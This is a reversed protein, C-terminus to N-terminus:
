QVRDRDHHVYGVGRSWFRLNPARSKCAEQDPSAIPEPTVKAQRTLPVQFCPNTRKLKEVEDLITYTLGLAQRLKFLLVGCVEEIYIQYQIQLDKWGKIAYKNREPAYSTQQVKMSEMQYGSDRKM